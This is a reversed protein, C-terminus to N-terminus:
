TLESSLLHAGDCVHADLVISLRPTDSCARAFASLPAPHRCRTCPLQCRVCPRVMMGVRCCLLKVRTGLILPHLEVGWYMDRLPGDLKADGKGGEGDYPMFRGRLYLLITAAFGIM